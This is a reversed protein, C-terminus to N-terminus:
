HWKPAKPGYSPSDHAQELWINRFEEIMLDGSKTNKFQALRKLSTLDAVKVVYAVERVSRSFNNMHVALILAAGCISPPRRGQVMWNCSLHQIIRLADNAVKTQKSNFNLHKVFRYGYATPDIHPLWVELIQVLQLYTHSPSFVNVQLATLLFRRDAKPPFSANQLDVFDILM